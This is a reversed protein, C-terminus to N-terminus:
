LKAKDPDINNDANVAGIKPVIDSLTPLRIGNKIDNVTKDQTKVANILKEALIIIPKIANLTAM